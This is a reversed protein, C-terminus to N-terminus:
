RGKRGREGKNMGSWWVPRRQTRGACWTCNQGLAKSHAIRVGLFMSGEMGGMSVRENGQTTFAVEEPLGERIM